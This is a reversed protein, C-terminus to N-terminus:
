ELKIGYIYSEDAGTTAIVLVDRYVAPSAEVKGSLQMTTLVDGTKANVLYLKGSGEAQLIWADGAQNYVAVPSSLTPSALPLSWAVAGSQKNLAYLTAGKVGNTATFYVLDSVSERGVVPSAYVGVEAETTYGLEPVAYAWVEKGTLADLRRVTCVGSKGQNLITNATYLAVTSEDQMDLAVTADVNDGTNVAWVPTLTNVDVCQVIGSQDGFYAYSGYMAVAGDINTNKTKQKNALWTYRQYAPKIKLTGVMHDFEDNPEMTYLIGNEAGVVMAGTSKDFLPAGNVGSYNSRM